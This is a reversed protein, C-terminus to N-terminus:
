NPNGPAVMVLSPGILIQVKPQPREEEPDIPSSSQARISALYLVYASLADLSVHSVKRPDFWQSLEELESPKLDEGMDHLVSLFFIFFVLMVNFAMTYPIEKGFAVIAM